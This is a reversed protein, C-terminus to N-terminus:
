PRSSVPSIPRSRRMAWAARTAKTLKAQARAISAEAGARVQEADDLTQKTTAETDILMRKREETGSANELQAQTKLLDARASRVALELATPDIAAVIQGEAM